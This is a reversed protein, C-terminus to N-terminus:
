AYTKGKRDKLDALTDVDRAMDPALAISATNQLTRFVSKAGTDGKLSSLAEFATDAFIAPPMLTGAADSMVASRGDAFEGALAMLHADTVDPMDALLIMAATVGPINRAAAIGAKLSSAQGSKADPNDITRWGLRALEAARAPADPTTIAIRAAPQATALR